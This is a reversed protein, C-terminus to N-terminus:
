AAEAHPRERVLDDIQRYGDLAADFTRHIAAIEDVLLRQAEGVRARVEAAEATMDPVEADVPIPVLRLSEEFRAPPPTTRARRDAERYVSLLTDLTQQLHAQHQEFLRVLRARGSLIQDYEGRRVSLDRNAEELTGIYDDRVELLRDILEQKRDIYAQHAAELRHQIDGFGPYPDVTASGDILAVVSFFFGIAFFLWSKLDTLGLPAEALRAMVDAGGDALLQGAVERYHALALNLVLAFVFWTCLATLGLFKRLVNRHVLEPLGLRGFLFSGAVNLLAFAFAETTGGLLGLESGKALFTGNLVTEAVLLVLLLGFKLVQAGTTPPRPTRALRHDRKFADKEEEHETLARRLRHLEDRGTAAEAKFESVAAPAAQRIESFRGEFDLSALREDFIRLQDLLLGHAAKKEAEVRELVRTEVEDLVASAAPPEEAAGRTRGEEGLRLEDAVVRPDIVPFVDLSSRYDHPERRLGRMLRTLAGERSM